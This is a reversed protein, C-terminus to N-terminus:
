AGVCRFDPAESIWGALIPRVASDQEHRRHFDDAGMM